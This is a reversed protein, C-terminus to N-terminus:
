KKRYMKGTMTAKATVAEITVDMVDGSVKRTIVFERNKGDEFNTRENEKIECDSVVTFVTKVDSGDPGKGDFEEGATINYTMPKDPYLSTVYTLTVKKGDVAYTATSTAGKYKETFAGLGIAEMFPGFTEDQGKDEWTGNFQSM